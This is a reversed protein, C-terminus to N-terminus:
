WRDVELITEGDPKLADPERVYIEMYGCGRCTYAELAGPELGLVAGALATGNHALGRIMQPDYKSSNVARTIHVLKKSGCKPCEKKQKM